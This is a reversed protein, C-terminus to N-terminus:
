SNAGNRVIVAELDNGNVKTIGCRVLQGALLDRAMVVTSGDVEPAQHLMRGIALDEQEIPEEILVEVTRGVFRSLRERTISEQVDLLRKQDLKAQKIMKRYDAIKNDKYAPTGEERSYIFTGVWDLRAKIIFQELEEFAEGSDNTFGLMFTSRFTADPLVSRITEILHLYSQTDGTRGMARLVQKSAHQFPIDFYPIITPYRAVIEPLDSPFTDPHIYLMRIRFDGELSALEVLLKTFHDTKGDWEKGYSALDQAILNIEKIGSVILRQAEEIIAKQPRSRLSGRILPIACYRCRHDCGESIKLYASGPFSLLTAREDYERDIAPYEPTAVMREGNEIKELVNVIDRLNRNGFIGDAEVLDAGLENAYRQSLCGTVVISAQPFEEKLSFFSDISEKRASEIFGCTNVLIYDADAAQEVVICGAHELEHLMVEADVQNKACGLNEVYIHKGKLAM